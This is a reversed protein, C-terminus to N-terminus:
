KLKISDYIQLYIRLLEEVNLGSSLCREFSTGLFCSRFLVAYIHEDVERIEKMKIAEKIVTEWMRIETESNRAAVEAFNPYYKSADLYLSFYAKYVNSISLSVMEYMTKNIGDIYILIFDKLTVQDPVNFKSPAYQTDVIYKDIVAEFLEQKSKFFYFIAGRTKGIANELDKVSTSEYGTSMFLCFAKKLIMEKSNKM